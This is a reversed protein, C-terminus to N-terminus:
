RIRDSAFHEEAVLGEGYDKVDTVRKTNAEVEAGFAEHKKLKGQLNVPNQLVVYLGCLCLM